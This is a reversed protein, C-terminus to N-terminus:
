RVQVPQAAECAAVNDLVIREIPINGSLQLSPFDYTLTGSNCGTWVITITGIPTQDTVVPPEASDLVGGTSLYVDLSATDGDYPGLATVWRHGADGLIAAVDEPPRTADFTFWSLFVLGSEEWVIVFFGQGDTQPNFWADSVASNIQFSPGNTDDESITILGNEFVDIDRGPASHIDCHYRVEGPTDFQREWEWRLTNYM